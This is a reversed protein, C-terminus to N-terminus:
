RNYLDMGKIVPYGNNVGTRIEWVQTEQGDNLMNVLEQAKMQSETLAEGISNLTVNAKGTLYYNHNKTFSNLIYGIIGGVRTSGEICDIEGVSYNYSIEGSSASQAVYGVIGAVTAVTSTTNIQNGANFCNKVLFNARGGVDGVIGGIGSDNTTEMHIINGYNACKEVNGYLLGVVGGLGAGDGTVTGANICESVLGKSSEQGTIGGVIGSSGTIAGENYCKNIITKDTETGAVMMGVIGGAYTTKATVNGFNECSYIKSSTNLMGTIGGVDDDSDNNTSEINGKNKCNKIQSNIYTSGIIGGIISKESKVNGQNECNIIESDTTYGVIGGVMSFKGFIEGSNACSDIQVNANTRGIIGGLISNADTSSNEIKGENRCFKVYSDNYLSGIIGGVTNKESKIHGYNNCYLIQNNKNVLGSIGGVQQSNSLIEGYNSCNNIIINEGNITGAIGGVRNGYGQIKGNNTCNDVSVSNQGIIGGTSVGSGIVTTNINHCNSIKGSRAAGVIGAAANTGKIFSDKITLNSISDSNAFIGAFNEAKNVYMGKILNNNGEFKAIFKNDGNDKGIPIWKQAENEETEWNGNQPRAGFDLSNMLYVTTEETMTIDAINYGEAIVLQKQEETLSRGNNTFDAVFKLQEPTYVYWNWINNENKLEPCKENESSVVSIKGTEISGDEYVTITQGDRTVYYVDALGSEEIKKDGAIGNQLDEKLTTQLNQNSIKKINRAAIVTDIEEKLASYDHSTKSDKARSLVGNNGLLLYFTIGALILLIIITIVLAILTIGSQKKM